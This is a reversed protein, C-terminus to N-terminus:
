ALGSPRSTEISIVFMLHSPAMVGNPPSLKKLPIAKAPRPATPSFPDAKPVSLHIFVVRESLERDLFERVSGLKPTGAVCRLTRCTSKAPELLPQSNLTLGEVRSVASGAVERVEVQLLSRLGARSDHLLIPEPITNM